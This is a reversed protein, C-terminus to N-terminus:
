YFRRGVLLPPVASFYGLKVWACSFDRELCWPFANELAGESRLELL